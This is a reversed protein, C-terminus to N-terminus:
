PLGWQLIHEHNVYEKLFEFSTKAKPKFLYSYIKEAIFISLFQFRFYCAAEFRQLTIGTEFSLSSLVRIIM